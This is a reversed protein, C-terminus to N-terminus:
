LKNIRKILILNILNIKNIDPHHMGSNPPCAVFKDHCPCPCRHWPCPCSCPCSSKWFDHCPCPCTCPSKFFRSVSVYMSVFKKLFRSVSTSMSVAIELFDHCPRPCPCATVGTDVSSQRRSFGFSYFFNWTTATPLLVLKTRFIEM